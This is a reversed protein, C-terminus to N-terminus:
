AQHGDPDNVPDAPTNEHEEGHYTLSTAHSHKSCGNGDCVSFSAFCTTNNSYYAQEEEVDEEADTYKCDRAEVELTRAELFGVFPM